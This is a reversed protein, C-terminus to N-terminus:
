GVAVNIMLKTAPTTDTTRSRMFRRVKDLIVFVISHNIHMMAAIITINNTSSINAKSLECGMAGGTAISHGDMVLLDILPTGM